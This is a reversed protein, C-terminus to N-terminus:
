ADRALRVWIWGEKTALDHDHPPQAHGSLFDTAALVCVAADIAHDSAVLATQCDSSLDLLSCLREVILQRQALHNAKDGKYGSHPLGHARLTAAPYVEVCGIPDAFDSQWVLPIPDSTLRRLEALLRLSAHATRAIRDAGVDLPQQGTAAKLWIDTTRRFLSHAEAGLVDGARHSILGQGLPAPWGLPADMALLVSQGSARAASVTAALSRASIHTLNKIAPRAGTADASAAGVNRLDTACDLGIVFM